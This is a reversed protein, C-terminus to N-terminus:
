GGYEKNKIELRNQDLRDGEIIMIEDLKDLFDKSFGKFKKKDFESPTLINNMRLLTSWLEINGYADQCYMRPRYRYREIEQESLEVTVLHPYLIYYYKDIINNMSVVQVVDTKTNYFSDKFHLNEHSLNKNNGYEALDAVTALRLSM